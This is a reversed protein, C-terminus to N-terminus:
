GNRVLIKAGFISLFFFGIAYGILDPKLLMTAVFVGINLLVILLYFFVNTFTAWKLIKEIISEQAIENQAQPVDYEYQENM